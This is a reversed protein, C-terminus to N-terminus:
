KSAAAFSPSGTGSASTSGSITSSSTAVGQAREWADAAPSDHPRKLSGAKVEDVDAAAVMVHAAGAPRSKDNHRYVPVAVQWDSRQARDETLSLERAVVKKVQQLEPADRRVYLWRTRAISADGGKRSM